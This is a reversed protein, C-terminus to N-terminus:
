GEYVRRFEEDDHIAKSEEAPDFEYFDRSGCNPCEFPSFVWDQFDERYGETDCDICRYM